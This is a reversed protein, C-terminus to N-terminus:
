MEELLARCKECVCEIERAYSVLGRKPSIYAEKPRSIHSKQKTLLYLARYRYTVCMLFHPGINRAYRLVTCIRWLFGIDGVVFGEHSLHLVRKPSIYAEKPLSTPRKQSLHLGRQPSIYAEKPRSTPRKPSLHLGRKPSIYAGFGEFFSSIEM